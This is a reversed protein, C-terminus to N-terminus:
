FQVAHLKQGRQFLSSIRLLAKARPADKLEDRRRKKIVRVCAGQQLEGDRSPFFRGAEVHRCFSDKLKEGGGEQQQKKRVQKLSQLIQIKLSRKPSRTM